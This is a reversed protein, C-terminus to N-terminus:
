AAKQESRSINTLIRSVFTEVIHRKYDASGRHDTRPEAAAAVAQAAAAISEDSLSKGVLVSIADNADITRGGVGALACGARRVTEGDM